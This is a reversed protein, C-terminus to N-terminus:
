YRVKFVSDLMALLSNWRTKVDLVLVVEEFKEGKEQKIKKVEGQLFEM